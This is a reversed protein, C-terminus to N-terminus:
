SLSTSRPRGLVKSPQMEDIAKSVAETHINLLGLKYQAHSNGAPNFLHSIDEEHTTVLTKKMIRPTATFPISFNAHGTTKNSLHFQKSIMENHNKVELCKTEQHLHNIDAM